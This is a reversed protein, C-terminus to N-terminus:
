FIMFLACLVLDRRVIASSSVKLDKTSEDSKEIIETAVLRAQVMGINSEMERLVVRLREIGDRLYIIKSRIENKVDAMEAAMMAIAYYRDRPSPFLDVLSSQFVDFVAAMEERQFSQVAPDYSPDGIETLISVELPTKPSERLKQDVLAKMGMLIRQVLEQVQMKEYIDIEMDDKTEVLTTFANQSSPEDDLLEDVLAVPYPVTKVVERVIFRFSGQAVLLFPSEESSSVPEQQETQSVTTAKVLINAACGIAGILSPSSSFTETEDSPKWVLHGYLRENEVFADGDDFSVVANGIAEEMLMRHMPRTLEVAYVHLSRLEDPLHASPLPIIVKNAFGSRFLDLLPLSVNRRPRTPPELYVSSCQQLSHTPQYHRLRWHIAKPILFCVGFRLLLVAILPKIPIRTHHSWRRSTM